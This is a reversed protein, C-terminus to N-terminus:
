QWDMFPAWVSTHQIKKWKSPEGGGVSDLSGLLMRIREAQPLRALKELDIPNEPHDIRRQAEARALKIREL